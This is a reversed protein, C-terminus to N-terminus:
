SNIDSDLLKEMEEFPMNVGIIQGEPGVLFKTPVEKVGYQSSIESDFFKFSTVLDAHHYQWNLQYREIARLWRDKNKEIALSVIEFGEANKFNAEQYKNNMAILEPFERICPMCWSGWFDILVYKGKLDSLEFSEGSPMEGSFNPALEGDDYNPTFYIYKGIFYGAGLILM